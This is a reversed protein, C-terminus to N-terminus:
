HRRYQRYHERVFSILPWLALTVGLWKLLTAVRPGRRAALAALTSAVPFRRAIGLLASLVTGTRGGARFADGIIAPLRMSQRLALVSQGLEVRQLAVRAVLIERRLQRSSPRDSL